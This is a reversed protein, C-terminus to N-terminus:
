DGRLVRMGSLILISYCHQNQIIVRHEFCVCESACVSKLTTKGELVIRPEANASYIVKIVAYHPVPATM